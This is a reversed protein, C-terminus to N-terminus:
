LNLILDKKTGTRITEKNKSPLKNDKGKTKTKRVLEAILSLRFKM